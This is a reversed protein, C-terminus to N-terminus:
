AINQNDLFIKRSVLNSDSDCITAIPYGNIPGDRIILNANATDCSQNSAADYSVAYTLLTIELM